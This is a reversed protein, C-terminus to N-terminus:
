NSAILKALCFLLWFSTSFYPNVVLIILFHFNFSNSNLVTDSGSVRIVKCGGGINLGLTKSKSLSIYVYISNLLHKPFAIVAYLIVM